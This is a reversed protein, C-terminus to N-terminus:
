ALTIAYCFLFPTSTQSPNSQSQRQQHAEDLNALQPGDSYHSYRNAGKAYPVKSLPDQFGTILQHEYGRTCHGAVWFPSNPPWYLAAGAPQSALLHWFTGWTRVEARSELPGGIFMVWTAGMITLHHDEVSRLKKQLNWNQTFTNPHLTGLLLLSFVATLYCFIIYISFLINIYYSHAQPCSPAHQQLHAEVQANTSMHGRELLEAKSNLVPTGIKNPKYITSWPMAVSHGLQEPKSQTTRFGFGLVCM